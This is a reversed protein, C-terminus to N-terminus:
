MGRIILVGTMDEYYLIDEYHPTYEYSIDEYIVYVCVCVCV